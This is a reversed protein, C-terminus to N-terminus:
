PRGEELVIIQGADPPVMGLRERAIGEVRRHAALSSQEIQLRGWEVELTQTRTQEHEIKSHLKRGEYQSSVVGLASATALVILLAIILADFRIM